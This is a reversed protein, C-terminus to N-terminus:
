ALVLDLATAVCEVVGEPRHVLDDWTFRLVRWGLLTLLTQRRDDAGLRRAGHFRVGDLEVAVRHAPYALDIRYRTGDPMVVLHQRVAPPLGARVLLRDTRREFVSDPVCGTRATLVRRARGVGNRGRRALGLFRAEVEPITALRRREIDDLVEVAHEDSWVACGDLWSRVPDLVDIGDVTSRDRDALDLTEHVAFGRPRRDWRPTVIEIAGPRAGPLRWLAAATRRAALSGPVSPVAAAVQQHWTAPAGALRVVGPHVEPWTGDRLRQQYQEDTVGLELLQSRAATAHQRAFTGAVRHCVEPDM